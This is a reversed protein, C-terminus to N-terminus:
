GDHSGVTSEAGLLPPDRAGCDDLADARTAAIDEESSKGKSPHEPPCSGVCLHDNYVRLGM